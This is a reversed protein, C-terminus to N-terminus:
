SQEQPNPVFCSSLSYGGTGTELIMTYIWGGPVKLIRDIRNSLTFQEHLKMHMIKENEYKM